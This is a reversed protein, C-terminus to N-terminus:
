AFVPKIETGELAANSALANEVANATAKLEKNGHAHSFAIWPMMVGQKIMEQYFLTNCKVMPNCDDGIVNLGAIKRFEKGYDNIHKIVEYKQMFEMTAIFAALGCMEAGHTTSLLFMDDRAGFEMIERKGTLAAVSFGNAIAKGWCSLDSKVDSKSGMRYRFGTIMEDFILIIKHADCFQRLAVMDGYPETIVCAYDEPHISHICATISNCWSAEVPITGLKRSTTSIFWDDYSYFPASIFLIKSRRTAARALKIAATTVSSGTKAFKVMDANVLSCMLEAAELEILSPRTLCNGLAMGRAAANCIDPQAYGCIASRLGMGYDLYKRGDADFVYAGDGHSLIPPANSPFREDGRSYTHCGGPIVKHLRQSYSM